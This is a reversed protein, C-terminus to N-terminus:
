KLSKIKDRLKIAEEYNQNKVCDSLKKNLEEIENKNEELKKIKDRLEVAMEFDQNKVSLNLRNKLKQLEDDKQKPYRTLYSYSLLGDNSTFTTRVWEGNEDSGKETKENGNTKLDSFLLDNIVDFDNFIRNFNRFLM